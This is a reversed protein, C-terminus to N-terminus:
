WSPSKEFFTMLISVNRFDEHFHLNELIKVLIATKRFFKGCDLYKSYKSKLLSKEFMKVLISIQFLISIKRFNYGFIFNECIKDLITTKEFIKM